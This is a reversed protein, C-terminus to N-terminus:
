METNQFSGVSLTVNIPIVEWQKGRGGWLIGSDGGGEGSYGSGGLGGVADGGPGAKALFFSSRQLSIRSM